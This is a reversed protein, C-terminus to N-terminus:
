PRSRIEGPHPPQPRKREDARHKTTARNGGESCDRSRAHEPGSHGSRDRTHGLDFPQDVTIQECCRACTVRKGAKIQAIWYGRLQRHRADYLNADGM